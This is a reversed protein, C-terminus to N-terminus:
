FWPASAARRIRIEDIVANGQHTVLYLVLEAIETPAMLTDSPIDPRVQAIMDTAVGGPCLVHVRINTDRLEEALAISMGRLAHKSATYATQQAYGKVGVVSAINIIFGHPSKKLLPLCERILLYPGRINTSMVCDFDPTTTQELPASLTVGANNVLIDLRGSDAHVQEALEKISSEGTLDFTVAQAKGGQQEIENVLRDIDKQTRAATIVHAGQEALMLAIAKGIGRSAGTVLAVQGALKNEM